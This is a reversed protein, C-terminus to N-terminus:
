QDRLNWRCTWESIVASLEAAVAHRLLTDGPQMRGAALMAEAVAHPDIAVPVISIGHKLRQRYRRNKESQTMARHPL